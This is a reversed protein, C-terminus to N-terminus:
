EGLRRNRLLHDRVYRGVGDALGTGPVPCGTQRLRDVSAETFYQYAPKLAEPMDIYDIAPERGLAVFIAEGLAAFSQARGTGINFPGNIKPKDLFWLTAEVADEVWVFDRLQGGDAYEPRHSKFLRLAGTAAFQEFGKAVVSRMDGKHDENPGYVNFYRLLAIHEAVGERKAWREILLKSFAYPNLPRVRDLDVDEAFGLSGDGYISASSAHIFRVGHELAFLCVAKTWRVNNEFLFDADTETTSSCAGFHLIAAPEFPPHDHLIMDLFDDRGIFDAFRLPALNRWKPGKGLKDVIIIDEIGKQNLAHVAASGLFGAGGTVVIPGPSKGKKGM